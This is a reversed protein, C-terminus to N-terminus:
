SRPRLQPPAANRMEQRWTAASLSNRRSCAVLARTFDRATNGGIGAGDCVVAAVHEMVSVAFEILITLKINRFKTRYKNNSYKM